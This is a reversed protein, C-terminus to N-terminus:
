GKSVARVNTKANGNYLTDLCLGNDRTMDQAFLALCIRATVKKHHYPNGGDQTGHSKSIKHTYTNDDPSYMALCQLTRQKHTELHACQPTEHEPRYTYAKWAGEQRRIFPRQNQQCAITQTITPQRVYAHTHAHMKCKVRTHNDQMQETHHNSLASAHLV